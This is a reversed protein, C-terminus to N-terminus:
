SVHYCGAHVKNNILIPYRSQQLQSEKDFTVWIERQSSLTYFFNKKFKLNDTQNAVIGWSPTDIWIDLSLRWLPPLEEVRDVTM